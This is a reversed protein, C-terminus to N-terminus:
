RILTSSKEEIARTKSVRLASVQIAAAVQQLTDAASLVLRKPGFM